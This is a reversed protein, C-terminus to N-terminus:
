HLGHIVTMIAAKAFGTIGAPYLASILLLLLGAPVSLTFLLGFLAPGCGCLNKIILVTFLFHTLRGM